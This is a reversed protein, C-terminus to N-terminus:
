KIYCEPNNVNVNDTFFMYPEGTEVRAKLIETWLKRKEKDGKLMTKMWSDSICVGHNINLCRRNVDGTPRRINIFEQIDPHDIPLYIASAGRRTSGQNVSLTTIDFVRAWPIIGESYGNGKIPVGRGRIDGFYIGVGAGNKSLTAFEYNKMFISDLSDDVHITNCSIPLGRNTGLNSLIPSAPCLWNKWLIHFFKKEYEESDLYYSAAAKSIRIYMERPTENNLLYGSNLTKFGEENMWEPADNNSKLEDLKSMPITM